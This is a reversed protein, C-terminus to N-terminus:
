LFSLHHPYSLSSISLHVLFFLSLVWIYHRPIKRFKFPIIRLNPFDLWNSSTNYEIQVFCITLFRFNRLSIFCIAELLIMILRLSSKAIALIAALFCRWGMHVTNLSFLQSGLFAHGTVLLSPLIFVYNSSYLNLQKQKNNNNKSGFDENYTIIFIKYAINSLPVFRM